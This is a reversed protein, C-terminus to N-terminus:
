EVTVTREFLAIGEGNVVCARFTGPPLMLTPRPDDSGYAIQDMPIAQQAEETPYFAQLLFTIGKPPAPLGPVDLARRGALRLWTPRGREDRTPPHLVAMDFMGKHERPVFTAKMGAQRLVIPREKLWGKEIAARYIPHVLRQHSHEMLLTQDVVLPDVGTLKAFRAAMWPIQLTTGDDKKWDVPLKAVHGYGAHILVKAKPDKAFIRDRLNRAAQEEREEISKVADFKEGPKLSAPHHDYPIIRYGLRLATRVVDGHVPEATFFGTAITPYGRTQLDKDREHLTEAAFYGYGERRLSALLLLTTLRHQPVDHAENIMVASRQSAFTTIVEIADEPGYGALDAAQVRGGPYVEDFSSPREPGDPYVKDSYTLAERYQGTFSLEMAYVQCFDGRWRSSALYADLQSQLRTLPILFQRNSTPHLEKLVEFPPKLRDGRDRVPQAGANLTLSGPLLGILVSNVIRSFTKCM